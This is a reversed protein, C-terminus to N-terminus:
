QDIKELKELKLRQKESCHKEVLVNMYAEDSFKLACYRNLARFTALGYIDNETCFKKVILDLNNVIFVKIPEYEQQSWGKTIRNKQEALAALITKTSFNDNDPSQNIMNDTQTPTKWVVTTPLYINYMNKFLELNVNPGIYRIFMNVPIKPLLKIQDNNDIRDINIFQPTFYELAKNISELPGTLEIVNKDSLFEYSFDSSGDAIVLTIYKPLCVENMKKGNVTVNNSAIMINTSM